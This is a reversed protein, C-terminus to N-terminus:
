PALGKSRLLSKARARQLETPVTALKPRSRTPSQRRRKHPAGDPPLEDLLEDCLDRIAQLKQRNM